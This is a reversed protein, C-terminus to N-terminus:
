EEQLAIAPQIRSALIAPYYVCLGVIVMIFLLSAIVSIIFLNINIPLDTFLLLQIILILAPLISLLTILQMEVFLLLRIQKPTAGIARRLGIESRRKNVSYGLIGLMGLIINILFFVSVIITTKIDGQINSNKSLKMASLNQSRSLVYDEKSLISFIDNSYKKPNVTALPEIDIGFEISYQDFVGQTVMPMIFTPECKSYDDYKMFDIVGVITYKQDEIELIKGIANNDDFLKEQMLKDVIIPSVINDFEDSTFWRGAIINPKFIKIFDEDAARFYSNVVNNNYKINYSSISSTYPIANNTLTVGKINPDSLLVKKVNQFDNANQKKENKTYIQIYYKNEIDCGVGQNYRDLKEIIYFTALFLVLFLIFLETILYANKRKQNWILKFSHKIM